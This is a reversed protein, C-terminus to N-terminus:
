NETEPVIDPLVTTAQAEAPRSHLKGRRFFYILAGIPVYIRLVTTGVSDKLLASLYPYIGGNINFYLKGQGFTLTILGSILLILLLWGVKGKFSHRLCDIAM